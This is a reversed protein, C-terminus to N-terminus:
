TINHLFDFKFTNLHKVQSNERILEDMMEEWEENNESRCVLGRYHPHFFHGLAFDMCTSGSKPFRDAMVHSAQRAWDRIQVCKLDKASNKLHTILNYITVVVMHITPTVEASLEQTASHFCKLLSVLESMSAFEDESPVDDFDADTQRLQLLPEELKLISEMCLYTSNWRVGGPSIIVRYPWKRAQSPDNNIKDCMAKVKNSQKSSRHTLASIAKCKRIIENVYRVNTLVDNIVLQLTHAACKVQGKITEALKIGRVINAANDNVSTVKTKEVNLATIGRIIQDLIMALNKSSHDETFSRM